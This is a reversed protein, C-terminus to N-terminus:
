GELKDIREQIRRTEVAAMGREIAGTGAQNSSEAGKGSAANGMHIRETEKLEGTAKELERQYGARIVDSVKKNDAITQEAIATLLAEADTARDFTEEMEVVVVRSSKPIRVQIDFFNETGPNQELYTQVM